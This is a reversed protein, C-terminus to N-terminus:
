GDTGPGPVVAVPCQAHVLVARGVSGPPSGAPGGWGRSGVVVLQARASEEVLVRATGTRVVVTRVPVEPYKDAWGALRETLIQQEDAADLRLAAAAGPTIMPGRGSRVAVLPVHRRAAADFAFAVTAEGASSGDVGLVVPGDGAAPVPDRVVVVACRAHTAVNVAASGVTPRATGGAGRGGLVLVDARASGAQLVAVPFGRSVVQEVELGPAVLAVERAAAALHQRAAARLTARYQGGPMHDGDQDGKPWACATLLRLPGGRRTAEVAAWRVAQLACESGDVGAVVARGAQTTWM